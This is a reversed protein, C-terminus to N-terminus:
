SQNDKTAIHMAYPSSWIAFWIFALLPPLLPLFLIIGSADTKVAGVVLLFFVGTFLVGGVGLLFAWWFRRTLLAVLVPAGVLGAPIAWYSVPADAFAGVM